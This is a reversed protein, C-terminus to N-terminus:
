SLRQDRTRPMQPPLVKVVLEKGIVTGSFTADSVSITVTDTALSTSVKGLLFNFSNDTVKSFISPSPTSVFHGEAAIVPSYQNVSFDSDEAEPFMRSDLLVDLINKDM